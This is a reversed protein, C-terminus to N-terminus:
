TAHSYPELRHPKGFSPRDDRVEAIGGIKYIFDALVIHADRQVNPM